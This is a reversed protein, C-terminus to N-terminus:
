MRMPQRKGYTLSRWVWEAPGFRYRRLWIPSYILQVIWISIVILIQQWREVYGFLGFGHGYFLTTCIVTQMLYNTLAMRGFAALVRKLWGLLSSRCLLMVVGVHGLAVFVSAWYNYQSGFFMSYEYAWGAAFNKIVGATVLPLGVGYGIGVMAAYFRASREASFVGKKFLAMGILMLGCVRWGELILFIFVQLAIAAPIRASMQELWNGRYAALEEAVQEAAPLWNRMSNAKSEEPWFPLSFGFMLFLLSAISFIILGVIILKRPSTKRGKFVILACVGYTFLIDGYWLLYAHLLGIVILWVSRRVHLGKPNIGKAEARGTMLVIGAGFLMSFISIFKENAIINSLTWVWYNAGSLDGFATPNVYGAMIMSFSQINMILIGLLAFGRLVDISSIREGLTVPVAGGMENSM